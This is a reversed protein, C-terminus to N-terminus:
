SAKYLFNYRMFDVDLLHNWSLGIADRVILHNKRNSTQTM